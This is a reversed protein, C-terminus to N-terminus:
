MPDSLKPEQLKAAAIVSNVVSRVSDRVSRASGLGSPPRSQRREIVFTKTKPAQTYDYKKVSVVDSLIESEEENYM